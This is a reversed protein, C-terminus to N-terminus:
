TAWIRPVSAPKGMSGTRLADWARAFLAKARYMKTGLFRCVLVDDLQSVSFLGAGDAGVADRVRADTDEMMPGAYVMTAMIPAGALAYPAAGLASRGPLSLREFWIPRGARRIETRQRLHGEAFAEGSAPRGLSVFDWGVYVADPALEVRTAIAADAGDFVITEQPLYECVAGAGVRILTEQGSAAHASRYFKTASPTTLLARAGDALHFRQSLTDGGAVGGPPHLVYVHCTGDAEPYFPQQVVLPGRHQRRLRTRGGEPAFWLDLEAPWRSSVLGSGSRVAPAERLTDTAAM